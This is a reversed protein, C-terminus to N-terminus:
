SSEKADIYQDRKEKTKRIRAIVVRISLVLVAIIWFVTALLTAYLPSILLGGGDHNFIWEKEEHSTAVDGLEGWWLGFMLTPIAVSAISLLTIYLFAISKRSKVVSVILALFGLCIPLLFFWRGLQEGEEVIGLFEPSM